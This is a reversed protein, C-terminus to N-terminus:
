GGLLLQRAFAEAEQKGAPLRHIRAVTLNAAPGPVLVEKFQGDDKLHDLFIVPSDRGLAAKAHREFASPFEGPSAAGWPGFEFLTPQRAIFATADVALRCEWLLPVGAGNCYAYSVAYESDESLWKRSGLLLRGQLDIDQSADVCGHFLVRGAKIQVQQSRSLAQVLTPYTAASANPHRSM